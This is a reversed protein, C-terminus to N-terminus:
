RTIILHNIGVEAETSNTRASLRAVTFKPTRGRGRDGPKFNLFVIHFFGYGFALPGLQYPINGDRTM